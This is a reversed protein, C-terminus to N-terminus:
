TLNEHTWNVIWLWGDRKSPCVGNRSSSPTSTGSAAPQSVPGGDEKERGIAKKCEHEEAWTSRTGDGAHESPPQRVVGVVAKRLCLESHPPVPLEQQSRHPQWGSPLRVDCLGDLSVHYSLPPDIASTGDV